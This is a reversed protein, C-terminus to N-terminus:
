KAPPPAGTLVLHVSGSSSAGALTAADSPDAAVVVLGETDTTGPWGPASGAASSGSTWLVPAGRVLVSTTAPIEFGNGTSLVVDVHQGPSLLQVTTEDAPRLPVAVSGPPSGTLLGTGVLFTEALVAGRHLPTALQEGIVAASDTFSQLPIAEPPLDVTTLHAPGLVTGVPLDEAAAVVRSLSQEPPIIAEVTVAAALCFLVAALFRRHRFAFRRAGLTFGTRRPPSKGNVM